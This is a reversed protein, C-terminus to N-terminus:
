DLDLEFADIQTIKLKFNMEVELDTDFKGQFIIKTRDLPAVATKAVAGALAGSFLSNIVSRTNKLGQMTISSDCEPDVVGSLAFRTSVADRAQVFANSISNIM